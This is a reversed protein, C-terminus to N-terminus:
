IKHSFTGKSGAILDADGGPILGSVSVHHVAHLDTIYVDENQGVVVGLPHHWKHATVITTVVGSSIEMRRIKNNGYDAIVLYTEDKSVAVGEPGTFTAKFEAGDCHGPCGNGAPTKVYLSVCLDVPANTPLPTPNKTPGPSPM